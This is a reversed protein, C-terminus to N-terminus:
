TTVQSISSELKTGAVIPRRRPTLSHAEVAYRFTGRFDLRKNAAIIRLAPM